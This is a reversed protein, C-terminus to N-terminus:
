RAGDEAEDGLWVREVAAAVIYIRENNSAPDTPVVFFGKREPRYGATTGALEEGDKFLVRARVGQEKLDFSKKEVYEKKGALDKVFFVAKLEALRVTVSHEGGPELAQVHFFDKNPAFDYTTGKLLRGDQYHVVVRNVGPVM